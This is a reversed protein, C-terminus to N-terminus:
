PLGLGALLDQPVQSAPGAGAAGHKVGSELVYTAEPSYTGLAIDSAFALIYQWPLGYDSNYVLLFSRQTNACFTGGLSM